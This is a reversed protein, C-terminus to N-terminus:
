NELRITKLISIKGNLYKILLSKRKSSIIEDPYEYILTNIKDETLTAIFRDAVDFSIQSAYKFM